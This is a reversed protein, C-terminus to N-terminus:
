IGARNWATYPGMQAQMMAAEPIRLAIRREVPALRWLLGSVANCLDDHQARLHDVTERSGSGVKRRLGCFQDVLRPV